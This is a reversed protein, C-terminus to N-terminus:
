QKRRLALCPGAIRPVMTIAALGVVFDLDGIRKVTEM